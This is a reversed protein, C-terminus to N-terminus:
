VLRANGRKVGAQQIRRRLDKHLRTRIMPTGSRPHRRCPPSGNMPGKRKRLLPSGPHRYLLRLAFKSRLHLSTSLTTPHNSADKSKKTTSMNTKIAVLRHIHILSSTRWSRLSPSQKRRANRHCTTSSSVRALPFSLWQDHSLVMNKLNYAHFGRLGPRTGHMFGQASTRLTEHM